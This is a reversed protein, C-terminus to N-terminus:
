EGTAVAKPPQWNRIVECLADSYNQYDVCEMVIGDGGVEYAIDMLRKCVEADTLGTAKVYGPIGAGSSNYRTIPFYVKCRGKSAMVERYAAATDEWVNTGRVIPTPINMLVLGDLTGDAALERWDVGRAKKELEWDSQPDHPYDKPGVRNIGMLLRVKRGSGDIRRRIGRYFRRQFERVLSRWREDTSDPVDEGPYRAKWANLVPEVYEDAEALWAHARLMDLFIVEAGSAIMEDFVRLKHELVEPFALSAHTAIPMGDKRRCWFQPHELTWQDLTWDSDHSEEYLWHLGPICGQSVITKLWDRMPDKLESGRLDFWGLSPTTLPTRMKEIPPMFRRWNEERTRYLLVGGNAVRWFITSCGTRRVHEVVQVAGTKTQLDYFEAFDSSDLLAIKEFAPPPTFDPECLARKYVVGERDYVIMRGNEAFSPNRGDAVRKLKGTRVEVLYVGWCRDEAQFGTFAVAGGSPHWAPSYACMREPTLFRPSSLDGVPALAIRWPDRHRSHEAWVLMDCDPSVRPSAVATKGKIKTFDAPLDPPTRVCVRIGDESMRFLDSVYPSKGRDPLGNRAGETSAYYVTKGDPAYAATYDLHRGFTLQRDVGNEQVWLNGGKESKAEKASFATEGAGVDIWTYLIAGDARWGAQLSDGTGERLLRERGSAVDRVFVRMREGDFRQYLVQKGDPSFVAEEGEFLPLEAGRQTADSDIAALVLALFLTGCSIRM